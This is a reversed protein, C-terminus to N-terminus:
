CPPPVSSLAYILDVPRRECLYKNGVTREVFLGFLIKVHLYIISAVVSFMGVECYFAFSYQPKYSGVLDPM